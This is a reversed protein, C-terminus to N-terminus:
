SLGRALDIISNAYGLSLKPDDFQEFKPPNKIIIELGKATTVNARKLRAMILEIFAHGKLYFYYERNYILNRAKEAMNEQHPNAPERVDTRGLYLMTEAAAWECIGEDFCRAVFIHNGFDDSTSAVNTQTLERNQDTRWIGIEPNLQYVFGHMNEHLAVVLRQERSGSKCVLIANWETVYYGEANAPPPLNKLSAVLSNRLGLVIKVPENAFQIGLYKELLDAELNPSPKFGKLEPQQVLQEHM